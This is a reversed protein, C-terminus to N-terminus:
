SLLEILKDILPLQSMSIMKRAEKLSFFQGRDIEPVEMYEGSGPPWQLTCMNSKVEIEEPGEYLFAWAHLNKGSQTILNGLSLFRTQTDLTMGTEECFERIAAALVDTDGIEVMGKPIGWCGPGDLNRFRPGGPVVLFIQLMGKGKTPDLRIMMLGASLPATM